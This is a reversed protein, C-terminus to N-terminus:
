APDDYEARRAHSTGGNSGLLGRVGEVISAVSLGKRDEEDAPTWKTSTVTVLYCKNSRRRNYTIGDDALPKQIRLIEDTLHKANKPWDKPLVDGGTMSAAATMAKYFNSSPAPGWVGHQRLLTRIAEGVPSDLAAACAEEEGEALAKAITGQLVNLAGEICHGVEEFETLRYRIQNRAELKAHVEERTRLVLSILDCISGFIRGIAEDQEAYYDKITRRKQELSFPSLQVFICRSRLDARNIFSTIGNVMIPNHADIVDEERNTRMLRANFGNGTTISCWDDSLWQPVSSVNEYALLHSNTIAPAMDRPDRPMNRLGGKRPDILNQAFKMLESKGSGEPGQVVLVPYSGFHAPMSAMVLTTVFLAWTEDNKINGQIRRMEEINGGHVPIPLPYMTSPRVFATREKSHPLVNWGDKTIYVSNMEERGLDIEVYTMGNGGSRLAIERMEGRWRAKAELTPLISAVTKETVGEKDGSADLVLLSLISRFEKSSLLYTHIKGNRELNAFTDKSRNHFLTLVECAALAREIQSSEQENECEFKKSKKEKTEDTATATTNAEVIPERDLLKLLEIVTHGEDLWDAVDLGKEKGDRAPYLDLVRVKAGTKRTIQDARKRAAERGKTDSDALIVTGDNLGRLQHLHDETMPAQSGGQITTVTGAIGAVRLADNLQDAKGEGEVLFIREGVEISRRLEPLRYLPCKKKKLGSKLAYSTGEWLYPYFDKRTGDSGQEVRDVRAFRSGDENHYEFMAVTKRPACNSPKRKALLGNEELWVAASKEDHAKGAHIVLSLKTGGENNICHCNWVGKAENIRMNLHGTGHRHSGWCTGKIESKDSGSTQGGLAAHVARISLDNIDRALYTM